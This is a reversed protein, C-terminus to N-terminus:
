KGASKDNFTRLLDRQAQLINAASDEISCLDKLLKEKVEKSVTLGHISAKVAFTNWIIKNLEL